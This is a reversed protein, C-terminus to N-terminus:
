TSFLLKVQFPKPFAKPQQLPSRLMHQIVATFFNVKELLSGVAPFLTILMLCVSNVLLVSLSQISQRVVMDNNKEGAFRCSLLWKEREDIPLHM